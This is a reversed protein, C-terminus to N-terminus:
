EINHGVEMYRSGAVVPYSGLPPTGDSVPSTGRIGECSNQETKM